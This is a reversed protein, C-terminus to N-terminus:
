GDSSRPNLWQERVRGSYMFSSQPKVSGTQPCHGKTIPYTLNTKGNAYLNISGIKVYHVDWYVVDVTGCKYVPMGFLTGTRDFGAVSMPNGIHPQGYPERLHVEEIGMERLRNLTILLDRGEVAAPCLVINVKPIFPAVQLIGPIDPPYGNGMTAAYIRPDLSTLSISGKDYLSWTHKSVDPPVAGNTRIGIKVDDWVLRLWGVLKETHRYLLPDTNSGTVNVDEVGYEKCLTVFRDIGALPWKDLNNYSDLAMM